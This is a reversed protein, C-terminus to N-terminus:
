MIWLNPVGSRFSTFVIHQGNPFWAPWYDRGPSNTLQRVNTGDANMVFVELDDDLNPDAEFAILKGNPSWAGDASVPPLGAFDSIATGDPRMVSLGWAGARDGEFVIKGATPNAASNVRGGGLMAGLSLILGAVWKRQTIRSDAM